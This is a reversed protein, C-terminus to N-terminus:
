TGWVRKLTYLASEKCLASLDAGVYGHTISAIQTIESDSLNNPIKNLYVQLIEKRGVSNPIGKFIFQCIM